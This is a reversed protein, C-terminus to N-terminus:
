ETSGLGGQFAMLLREAVRSLGWCRIPDSHENGHEFSDAM